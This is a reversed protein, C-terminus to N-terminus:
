VIARVPASPDDAAGLLASTFAQRESPDSVLTFLEELQDVFVLVNTGTRRAHSRLLSGLYGPESGLRKIIAQQKQTPANRDIPATARQVVAALAQIPHRGPRVSLIEWSEGSAKLAPAVGARVFSSKGAGSPGIVGSLPQERVRSVM